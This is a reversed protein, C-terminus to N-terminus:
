SLFGALVGYCPQESEPRYFRDASSSQLSHTNLAVFLHIGSGIRQIEVELGFVLELHHEWSIGIYCRLVASDAFNVALKM